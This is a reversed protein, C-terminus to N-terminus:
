QCRKFNICHSYQSDIDSNLYILGPKTNTDVTVCWRVSKLVLLVAFSTIVLPEEQRCDVSSFALAIVCCFFLM